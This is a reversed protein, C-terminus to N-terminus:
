TVRAVEKGRMTREIAAKFEDVEMPDIELTESLKRVTDLSPLGRGGEIAYITSRAVGSAQALRDASYLKRARAEVLKMDQYGGSKIAM